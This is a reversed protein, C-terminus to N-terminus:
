RKLCNGMMFFSRRAASREATWYDKDRMGSQQGQGHLGGAVNTAQDVDHRRQAIWRAAARPVDLLGEVRDRWEGNLLGVLDDVRDLAACGFIQTVFEGVEQQLDDKV